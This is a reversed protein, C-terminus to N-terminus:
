EKVHGVMGVPEGESIPPTAVVYLMVGGFPARIEELKAGFFDTVYGLLTGEAVMEDRRVTAYFIGTHGSRLVVNKDIWLPHKVMDPEGPIMKLYRMVSFVGREHILMHEDHLLAGSPVEGLRGSEATIAPKGRLTATSSAYLSAAPDRPRDNDIVIHDLGYALCLQKSVDDVKANGTPSWYSYARLSENGDGSHMDLVYDSKEIVEKTIAYAIRESVTGDPKGPFVRNLNKRDVPSYYISRGLFSPLNSVHVMIVTGALQQPNIAGRLRQLALVSSYEYGHIGALLGLVPGPKAGHIVTVPVRTAQDSGKDIELYGSALTGPAPNPLSSSLLLLLIAPIM